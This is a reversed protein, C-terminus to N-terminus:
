HRPRATRSAVRYGDAFSGVRREVANEPHLAFGDAFSGVRRAAPPRPSRELGESFRGVYLTSAVSPLHEIGESFRRRRRNTRGDLAIQPDEAGTIEGVDLADTVQDRISM